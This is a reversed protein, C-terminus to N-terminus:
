RAPQRLGGTPTVVADVAVDHADFPLEPREDGDFLVAILETARAPPGAPLLALSRDYHGGGRGLRHGADDVALAPVLVVDAMTVAGAGRRPGTPAAIGFAGPSVPTPYDTWDLPADAAAVPVLVRVGAAHLRDLLSPLLPETALPLYACVIACHQLRPWLHAAVAARAAVRDPESRARRSTLLDARLSQKRAAVLDAHSTM